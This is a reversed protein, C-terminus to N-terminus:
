KGDNNMKKVEAIANVLYLKGSSVEKCQIRKRQNVGRQFVRGSLIFHEGVAIDKAYLASGNKDYKRLALFLDQDSASSAKPNKIYRALPRKIDEPFWQVANGAILLQAFTQKWEKGHPAITKGFESFAILHAFEHISTLYFAYPNLNGNVTIVHFGNADASKYDGFKTKRPNTVKFRIKNAAILDVVQDLGQEPLFRQLKVKIAEKLESM